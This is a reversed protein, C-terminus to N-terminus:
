MTAKEQSRRETGRTGVDGTPFFRVGDASVPRRRSALRHVVGVIWEFVVELGEAIERGGGVSLLDKLLGL